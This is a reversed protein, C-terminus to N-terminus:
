PCRKRDAALLEASGSANALSRLCALLDPMDKMMTRRMLWHPAPLKPQVQLEYTVLTYPSDEVSEFQWSGEMKRLDGEVLRFLMVSHPERLAEFTYETRPLFWKKKVVQWTRAYRENANLVRCEKLGDVFEFNHECSGVYAWITEPSARFLAQVRAAGGSEDTHTSEVLVEGASLSAMTDDDPQNPEPSAPWDRQSAAMVPLLVLCGILFWAIAHRMSSFSATFEPM